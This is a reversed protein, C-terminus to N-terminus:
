AAKRRRRFIILVWILVGCVGVIAFLALEFHKIEGLVVEVGRGFYYGALGTAVAWLAAGILNLLTFRLYSVQSMGIAFPTVTRIGYLFRFGLILLEPYAEMIRHVRQLPTQWSPRWALLGPGHRRGLYFYLQDGLLTGLFGCGIVWDLSLYGLHAAIGGLIMVTEGELFTGLVLIPYGYDHLLTELM